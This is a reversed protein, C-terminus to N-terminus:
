RGKKTQDPLKWIRNFWVDDCMAEYWVRDLADDDYQDPDYDDPNQRHNAHRTIMVAESLHREFKEERLLNLQQHFFIERGVERVDIYMDRVFLVDSHPLVVYYTSSLYVITMYFTEDTTGTLGTHALAKLESHFPEERWRDSHEPHVFVRLIGPHRDLVLMSRLPYWHDPLSGNLWSCTYERCVPPRTNYISCGGQEPRCHRCWKDKPKNVEPVPFIFCCLSCAGCTREVATGTVTM